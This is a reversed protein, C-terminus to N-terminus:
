SIRKRAEPAKSPFNAEGSFQSDGQFLGADTMGAEPSQMVTDPRHCPVMSPFYVLCPPSTVTGTVKSTGPVVGAKNFLHDIRKSHTQGQQKIGRIINGQGFM